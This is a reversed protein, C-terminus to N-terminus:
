VTWSKAFTGNLLLNMEHVIRLKHAWYWLFSQVKQHSVALDRHVSHRLWYIVLPLLYLWPFTTRTNIKHSFPIKSIILMRFLFSFLNFCQPESFTMYNTCKLYTLPILFGIWLPNEGYFAFWWFRNDVVERFLYEDTLDFGIAFLIEILTLSFKCFIKIIM